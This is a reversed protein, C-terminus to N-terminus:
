PLNTSEWFVPARVLPQSLHTRYVRPLQKHEDFLSFCGGLRGKYVADNFDPIINGVPCGYNSHCFPVGCDMCRAGQDKLAEDPLPITFENYHKIREEIPALTFNQRKYEKFGTPKGM